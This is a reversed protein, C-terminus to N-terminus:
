SESPEGIDAKLHNHSHLKAKYKKIQRELKDVCLEVSKSMEESKEIAHLQQGYVKLSIDAIRDNKEHKLLIECDIIGDYYKELKRVKKEAFEKLNATAKFHRATLKVRM